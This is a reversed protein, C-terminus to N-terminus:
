SGTDGDRVVRAVWVALDDLNLREAGPIDWDEVSMVRRVQDRGGTTAADELYESLSTAADAMSPRTPDRFAEALSWPQLDGAEVLLLGAHAHRASVEPNSDPPVTAILHLLNEAVRSALTRDADQWDSRACGELNSVLEPIDVVVYGYFLGGTTETGGAYAIEEGRNHRHLDEVSAFFDTEDEEAHVTFAHAVLLAEEIGDLHRSTVGEISRLAFEGEAVLWNRMLWDSSVLKRSADGYILREPLGDDGQERPAEPYFGLTHIQLFRPNTM